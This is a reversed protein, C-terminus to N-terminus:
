EFNCAIDSGIMFLCIHYSLQAEIIKNVASENVAGLYPIIM